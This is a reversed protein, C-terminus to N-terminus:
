TDAQRKPRVRRARILAREISRRHVGAIRAAECLRAGQAVLQLARVMAASVRGSM